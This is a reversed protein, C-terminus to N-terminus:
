WNLFAVVYSAIQKIKLVRLALHLCIAFVRYIVSIMVIELSVNRPIVKKELNIKKM